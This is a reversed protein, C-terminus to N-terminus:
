VTMGPHHAAGSWLHAIACRPIELNRTSAPADGRFSALSLSLLDPLSGHAQEVHLSLDGDDGARRAADAARDGLAHGLMARLDHDGRALGIDAIGHRLLDVVFVPLPRRHRDGG